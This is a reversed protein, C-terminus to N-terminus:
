PELWVQPVRADRAEDELERWRAALGARTVLLTELRDNLDAREYSDEVYDFPRIPAAFPFASGIPFGFGAIPRAVRAGRFVQPAPNILVQGRGMPASGTRPAVLTGPSTVRPVVASSRGIPWFPLVSTILSHTALPFQGFESLRARLYNIQADVAGIEGRLANARERWFGEERRQALSRERLWDRIEAQEQEQRRRSEEISPLGLEIRRKEYTRESEIRRQQISELDRNTLTRQARAPVPPSPTTLKQEAQKGFSGPAQNNARETAAVDVLILQVTRSIGPAIEYTLTSKTLTFEPAIEIRRGDRLVITYASAVVSLALILIASAAIRAFLRRTFLSGIPLLNKLM